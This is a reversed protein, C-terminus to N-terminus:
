GPCVAYVSNLVSRIAPFFVGTYDDRLSLFHLFGGLMVGVM